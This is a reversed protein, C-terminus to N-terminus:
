IGITFRVKYPPGSQQFSIRVILEALLGSLFALVGFMASFAALLPLPTEIFDRLNALKFYVAISAALVSVSVGFLGFKGFFYMPKTSNNLLFRAVLLDAIVRPARSIGYKSTGRLRPRHHVEVERIMGGNRRVLIPIMRHMEGILM